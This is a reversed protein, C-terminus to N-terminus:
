FLEFVFWNGVSSSLLFFLSFIFGSFLIRFATVFLCVLILMSILYTIYIYINNFHISKIQIIKCFPFRDFLYLVFPILTCVDIEKKKNFERKKNKSNQIQNLYIISTLFEFLFLHSSIDTYSYLYYNLESRHTFNFVNQSSRM